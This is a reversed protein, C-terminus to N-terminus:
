NGNKPKMKNIINQFFDGRSNDESDEDTFSNGIGGVELADTYALEQQIFIHLIWLLVDFVISKPFFVYWFVNEM